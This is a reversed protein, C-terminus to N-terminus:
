EAEKISSKIKELLEPTFDNSNMKHDNKGHEKIKTIITDDNKDVIEYSCDFGVDRCKFSLM